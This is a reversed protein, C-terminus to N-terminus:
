LSMKGLYSISSSCQSSSRYNKNRGSCGNFFPFNHILQLRFGIVTRRTSKLEWLSSSLPTLSFGFRRQGLRPRRLAPTHLSTIRIIHMLRYILPLFPNRSHQQHVCVHSSHHIRYLLEAVPVTSCCCALSCLKNEGPTTCWSVIPSM